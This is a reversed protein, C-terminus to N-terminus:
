KRESILRKLELIEKKLEDIQSQQEKVAEVLVPTLKGYDVSKYGEADTQVIEPFLKEIEQASFGLQRANTFHKDPFENTKWDYYIGNLSLVSQLANNISSFNTKYRIDSCANFASACIAGSVDVGGGTKVVMRSVGNTFFQIGWQYTGANRKVAIGEGTNGPLGFLLAGTNLNGTNLDNPDIFVQANGKVRMTQSFSGSTGYGFAVDSTSADAHIQLTASAVGFGYHNGSQGLLSIKDGTNNDFTLKFGPTTTGIGINGNGKIRMRETFASSSGYGFAIDSAAIDAHIQLLNSAIGFGYHNGSQGWLSIKDGINDDFSLKFEPFLSNGVGINGNRLITIANKRSAESGNGIQFIRDSLQPSNPVPSDVIDNFAGLAIGGLARAGVNTGATFSADGSASTSLGTAFSREGTALNSTGIAVSAIGFANNAAGIAVAYDSYSTNIFGFTLSSHGYAANNM